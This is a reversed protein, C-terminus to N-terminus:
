QRNNISGCLGQNEERSMEAETSILIHKQCHVTLLSDRTFLDNLDANFYVRSGLPITLSQYANILSAGVQVLHSYKQDLQSM